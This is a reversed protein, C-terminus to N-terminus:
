QKQLYRRGEDSNRVQSIIGALGSQSRLKGYHKCALKLLGWLMPLSSSSRFNPDESLCNVAQEDLWKMVEKSSVSGGVLPGTLSPRSLARLYSSGTEGRGNDSTQAVLQSLSHVQIPGPVFAQGSAFSQMVGHCCCCLSTYAVFSESGLLIGGRPKKLDSTM